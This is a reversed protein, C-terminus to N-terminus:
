QLIFIYILFNTIFKFRWTQCSYNVYQLNSHSPSHQLFPQHCTLPLYVLLSLSRLGLSLHVTSYTYLFISFLLEPFFLIPIQRSPLL